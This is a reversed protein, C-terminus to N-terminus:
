STQIVDDLELKWARAIDELTNRSVAEPFSSMTANLVTDTGAVSVGIAAGFGLRGQAFWLNNLTWASSGGTLDGIGTLLSLDLSEHVGNPKQFCLKRSYDIWDEKIFACLGIDMPSSELATRLKCAFRAATSVVSDDEGVTLHLHPGTVYAGLETYAITKARRRREDAAVAIKLRVRNMKSNAGGVVVKAVAKTLAAVVVANDSLGQKACYDRLATMRSADDELLSICVLQTSRKECTDNSLECHVPNGRWDLSNYVAALRPFRDLLVPLLLHYISPVTDMVDELPKPLLASDSLEKSLTADSVESESVADNQIVAQAVQLAGMGDSILHHFSLVLAFKRPSDKWKVMTVRWMPKSPDEDHWEKVHEEELVRQLGSSNGVAAATRTTLSCYPEELVVTRTSPQCLDAVEEVYLNDGWVASSNEQDSAANATASSLGVRSDVFSNGGGATNKKNSNNGGAVGVGDRRVKCRLWLFKRSVQFLRHRLEAVGPAADAAVQLELCLCFGTHTGARSQAVYWRELLGLRRSSNRRAAAECCCRPHNLEVPVGLQQQRSKLRVKVRGLAQLLLCSGAAGLIAVPLPPWYSSNEKENRRSSSSSSRFLFLSAAAAVIIASAARTPTTTPTAGLSSRSSM